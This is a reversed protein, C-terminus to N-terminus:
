ERVPVAKYGYMLIGAEGEAQVKRFEIHLPMGISIEEPDCDTIQMMTSVGDDLEVIGVAYPVEDVFNSPAVRIITFTKLKGKDPLKVKEFERSNCDNCIVRPPFHIKGCNLCKAAEMRYRQPYERWNRATIGM